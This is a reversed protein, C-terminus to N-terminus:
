RVSIGGQNRYNGLKNSKAKVVM